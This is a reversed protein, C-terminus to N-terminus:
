YIMDGVLYLPLKGLKSKGAVTNMIHYHLSADKMIENDITRLDMPTHGENNPINPNAGLKCYNNSLTSLRDVVSRYELLEPLYEEREEDDFDIFDEFLELYNEVAENSEMVLYHLPTNGDIDKENIGGSDTSLIGSKILTSV